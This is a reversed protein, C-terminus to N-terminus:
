TDLSFLEKGKETFKKVFELDKKLKPDLNKIASKLVTDKDAFESIKLEVQNEQQNIVASDIEKTIKYGKFKTLMTYDIKKFEEESVIKLKIYTESLDGGKELLDVFGDYFLSKFDPSYPNKHFKLDKKFTDYIWVGKDKNEKGAGTEHYLNLLSGSYQVLDNSAPVHYHGSIVLDWIDRDFRDELATTDLPNFSSLGNHMCIIRVLEKKKYNTKMKRELASLSSYWEEKDRIFPLFNIVVGEDKIYLSEPKSYGRYIYPDLLHFPNYSETYDHNGFLSSVFIDKEKFAKLKDKLEQQLYLFDSLEKATMLKPDDIEDGLRVIMDVKEEMALDYAWHLSKSIEINRNSKRTKPDIRSFNKIGFHYDGIWLIKM